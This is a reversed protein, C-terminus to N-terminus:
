RHYVPPTCSIQRATKYDKFVDTSASILCLVRCFNSILGGNTPWGREDNFVSKLLIRLSGVYNSKVCLPVLTLLSLM